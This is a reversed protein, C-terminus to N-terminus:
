VTTQRRLQRLVLISVFLSTAKQKLIIRWLYSHNIPLIIFLAQNEQVIKLHREFKKQNHAFFHKCYHCSQVKTARTMKSARLYYASYDLSIDTTFYCLPETELDKTLKYIIDLQQFNKREKKEYKIRIMTFGNYKEILCSSLQKVIKQQDPKKM